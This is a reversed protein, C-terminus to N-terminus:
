KNDILFLHIELQVEPGCIINILPYITRKKKKLLLLRLHTLTLLPFPQMKLNISGVSDGMEFRLCSLVFYYVSVPFTLSM